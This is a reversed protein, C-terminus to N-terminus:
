NLGVFEINCYFMLNIVNFKGPSKLSDKLINKLRPVSHAGRRSRSKVVHTAAEVGLVSDMSLHTDGLMINESILKGSKTEVDMSNEQVNETVLSLLAKKRLHLDRTSLLSDRPSGTLIDDEGVPAAALAMVSSFSSFSKIHLDDVYLSAAKALVSVMMVVSFYVFEM